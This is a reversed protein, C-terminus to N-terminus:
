VSFFYLYGFLAGTVAAAGGALLNRKSALRAPSVCMFTVISALATFLYRGEPNSWNMNLKIYAATTVLMTLWLLQENLTLMRQRLRGLADWLGMGVYVLVLLPGIHNLVSAWSDGREIHQMPFWFFRASAVGFRLTEGISALNKSEPGFGVDMAFFSGYLQFNRWYWPFILAFAGIIATSASLGMKVNRNIWAYYAFAYIIVPLYIFSSSKILMAAAFLATISTIYKRWHVTTEYGPTTLLYLLMMGAFWSVSDNSVLSCFYMHAPFFACFLVGMSVISRDPYIRFIVAGLVLLALVGFLWSILRGAYFAGDEGVFPVFLAVAMYYLPPQYYEYANHEFANPSQISQTQIPFSRNQALYTVYNFHSPEDNLGELGWKVTQGYPVTWVLIFRIAVALGFIIWFAKSHPIWRLSPLPNSQQEAM